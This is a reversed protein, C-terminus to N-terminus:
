LSRYKIKMDFTGCNLVKYSKKRKRWRAFMM